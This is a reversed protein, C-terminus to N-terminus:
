FWLEDALLLSTDMQLFFKFLFDLYHLTPESPTSESQFRSDPVLDTASPADWAPEGGDRREGLSLGLCRSSPRFVPLWRDLPLRDGDGDPPLPHPDGWCFPPLLCRLPACPPRGPEACLGGSTRVSPKASPEDLRKRAAVGPLTPRPLQLAPTELHGSLHEGQEWGESRHEALLIPHRTRNSTQRNSTPQINNGGPGPPRALSQSHTPM